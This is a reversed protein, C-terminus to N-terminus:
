ELKKLWRTLSKKCNPCIKKRKLWMVIHEEHALVGCCPTTIIRSKESPFLELMCVICRPRLSGCKKCKETDTEFVSDCTYCRVEDIEVVGFDLLMLEKYIEKALSLTAKVVKEDRLTLSLFKESIVLRELLPYLSTLSNEITTRTLIKKYDISYTTKISYKTFLDLCDGEESREKELKSGNWM